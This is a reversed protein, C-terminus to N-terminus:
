FPDNIKSRKQFRLRERLGRPLWLAESPCHELCCYCEICLDRNIQLGQENLLLASAPCAEVCIGCEKCKEKRVKPKAEYLWTYAKGVLWSPILREVWERSRTFPHRFGALPLDEWNLGQLEIGSPDANGLGAKEALVISPVQSITFGMVTAAVTDLAVPDKSTLLLGVKRPQGGAPGLGEMAVIGDLIHIMNPVRSKIGGYIDVLAQAMAPGTPAAVHVARKLSGPMLGLINKIAGTIGTLIHTKMKPLNIILDIQDLLATAKFIKLLVGGPNAIEILEREELNVLEAGLRSAAQDLGMLAYARRAKGYSGMGGSDAIFLNVGYQNKLYQGVAEVVEVRTNVPKEPGHDASLCNPKLLVRAGTFLPLPELAALLDKV